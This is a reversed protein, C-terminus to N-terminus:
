GWGGGLGNKTLMEKGCFEHKEYDPRSLESAGYDTCCRYQYAHRRASASDFIQMVDMNLDPRLLLGISFGKGLSSIKGDSFQNVAEDDLGDRALLTAVGSGEGSYLIWQRM